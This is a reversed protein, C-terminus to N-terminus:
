KDVEKSDNLHKHNNIDAQEKHFGCSFCYNEYLKFPIYNVLKLEEKRMAELESLSYVKMNKIYEIDPLWANKYFSDIEGCNPCRM